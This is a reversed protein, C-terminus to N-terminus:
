AAEKELKPMSRKPDYAEILAGVNVSRGQCARVVQEELERWAKEKSPENRALKFRGAPTKQDNAQEFSLISPERDFGRQVLEKGSMRYCQGTPLYVMYGAPELTEVATNSMVGDLDPNAEIQKKTPPAVYKMRLVTGPLERVVFELRPGQISESGANGVM